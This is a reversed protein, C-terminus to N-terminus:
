RRYKPDELLIYFDKLAREVGCGYRDVLGSRELAEHYRADINLIAEDQGDEYIFSSTTYESFDPRPGDYTTGQIFRENFCVWEIRNNILVKGEKHHVVTDQYQTTFFHKHALYAGNPLQVVDLRRMAAGLLTLAIILSTAVICLVVYTNWAVRLAKRLM